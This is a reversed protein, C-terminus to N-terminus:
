QELVCLKGPAVFNIAMQWIQVTPFITKVLERYSQLQPVYQSAAAELEKLGGSKHDIIIGGRSGIALCDIIGSASSGNGDVIQVPLETHIDPYDNACLWVRLRIAQQFIQELVHSELGTAAAVSGYRGPASLAVRYALHWATGREAFDTHASFTGDVAIGLDIAMLPVRDPASQSILMSPNRVWPTLADTAVPRPLGYRLAIEREPAGKTDFESPKADGCFLMRASFQKGAVCIGDGTLEVASEVALLRAYSTSAADDDDEKKALQFAPWELILRDRARTLAVYLLRRADENVSAQCASTFLKQKDPVPLRPTFKLRASTLLEDLNDFRSFEAGVNGAREEVKTDLGVVVVIHWERGKSAHWTVIEVGSAGGSEPDAQRDFDRDNRQAELWGLFVPAAEGYFGAAAKMDRHAAEFNAVEAELRLLNARMQRPDPLSMAWELLNGASLVESLLSALPMTPAGMALEALRTMGGMESLKGDALAVMAEQLGVAPPGLTLYLMAAYRDDPDAVYALAARAAQVALCDLWGDQSICVPINLERLMDAYRAAQAHTRCLLAIDGPRVARVEESNRDVVCTEGDDLLRKVRAAVHFEPKVKRSRRGESIELIELVTECKAVRNPALAIYGDGFLRASVENVFAMIRPDSRWNTRLPDLRDSFQRELQASLRPDAGQFGMISQKTDGVILTRKARQAIRWLLAFQVPNTDQFEDIIVCDVEALLADLVDPRERLLREAGAIMDAFDIVGAQRKAEGYRQIVEQAGLVIARLNNCADDLPGPHEVVRFAASIVDNSLALFDDPLALGRGSTRLESLTKWLKWNRELEGERVAERLARHQADFDDRAAKSNAFPKGGGRYARLFNAAAERLAATLPAGDAVVPGYTQRLEAVVDDVLLPNYAGEGLGQLVDVAKLITSRFDDEISKGSYSGSYGYRPLDAKIPELVACRALELRLLLEREAESLQRPSPSTGAAFAHETMLRLGLAHITSIYAREVAMAEAVMGEKLLSARIRDRLEGAAAETFTVAMIREPRILKEKVWRTLDSKIRHTKGSGAGAPIITMESM